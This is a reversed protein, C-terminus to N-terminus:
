TPKADECASSRRHEPDEIKCPVTGVHKRRRVMIKASHSPVISDGFVHNSPRRTLPRMDYNLVIYAILLKMQHAALWRGPSSCTDAIVRESQNPTRRLFSRPPTASQTFHLTVSWSHRGHGFGMFKDSTTSLGQPKCETARKAGLADNPASSHTEQSDVFRFPEFKEPRPYFREDLHIERVPIGIWAGQRLHNGDPLDVGGEPIVEHPIAKRLMPNIRLSERISSDILKLKSVSSLDKWDEEKTFTAAAEAQLIQYVGAEPDTSLVDLITNTTTM